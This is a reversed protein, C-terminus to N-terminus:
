RSAFAVMFIFIRINNIQKLDNIKDAARYIVYSLLITGWVYTLSVGSTFLHYLVCLKFFMLVLYLLIAAQSRVYFESVNGLRHNVYVINKFQLFAMTLADILSEFKSFEDAMLVQYVRKVIFATFYLILNLTFCEKLYEVRMMKVVFHKNGLIKSMSANKEMIVNRMPHGPLVLQERPVSRLITSIEANCAAIRQKQNENLLVTICFSVVLLDILAPLYSPSFFFNTYFLHRFFGTAEGMYKNRMGIYEEFKDEPVGKLISLTMSIVIMGLFFYLMTRTYWTKLGVYKGFKRKLQKFNDKKKSSQLMSHGIIDESSKASEISGHSASRSLTLEAEKSESKRDRPISPDELKDM